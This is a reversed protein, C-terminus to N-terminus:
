VNYAEVESPTLVALTVWRKPFLSERGAFSKISLTPDDILGVVEVLGDYDRVHLDYRIARVLKKTIAINKAVAPFKSTEM